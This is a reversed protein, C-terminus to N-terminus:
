WLEMCDRLVDREPRCNFPMMFREKRACDEFASIQFSTSGEVRQM